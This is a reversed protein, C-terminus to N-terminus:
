QKLKIHLMLNRVFDSRQYLLYLIVSLVILLASALTVPLLFDQQLGCGYLVFILTQPLFGLASAALFTPIPIASLGTLANVLFGPAPIQRLLFTTAFAHKQLYVDVGHLRDVIAKQLFAERAWLVTLYVIFSGVLAAVEALLVGLWFGFLAGALFCIATRPFGAGIALSSVALFLVPAWLSHNQLEARLKELQNLHLYQRLPSGYLVVFCLALCIAMVVSKVISRWPRPSTPKDPM